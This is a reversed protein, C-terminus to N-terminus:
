DYDNRQRNPKNQAKPYNSLPVAQYSSIVYYNSFFGSNGNANWANNSNNRLCSWIYSGNRTFTRNTPTFSM